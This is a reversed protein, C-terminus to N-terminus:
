TGGPSPLCWSAKRPCLSSSRCNRRATWTIPPRQGNRSARHRFPNSTGLVAVPDLPTSLEATKLETRRRDQPLEAPQQAQWDPWSFCHVSEDPKGSTENLAPIADHLYQLWTNKLVPTKKDSLAGIMVLHDCARTMAVYLLRQQEQQLEGQERM